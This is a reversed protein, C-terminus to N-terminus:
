RQWAVGGAKVNAEGCGCTLRSDYEGPECAEFVFGDSGVGSDVFGDVLGTVVSDGVM